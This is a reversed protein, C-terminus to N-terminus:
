SFQIDVNKITPPTYRVIRGGQGSTIFCDLQLAYIIVSKYTGRVKGLDPERHYNHGEGYITWMGTADAKYEQLLREVIHEYNINKKSLKLIDAILQRNVDDEELRKIEEDALRSYKARIAAKKAENISM